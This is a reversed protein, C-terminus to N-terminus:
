ASACVTFPSITAESPRAVHLSARSNRVTLPAIVSWRGAPRDVSTRAVVTLPSMWVSKGSMTVPRSPGRLRRPVIPPPPRPNASSVTFPEILSLFIEQIRLASHPIRFLLALTAVRWSPRRAMGCEANAMGCQNAGGRLMATGLGGGDRGVKTTESGPTGHHQSVKEGAGLLDVIKAVKKPREPKVRRPPGHWGSGPETRGLCFRRADDSRRQHRTM